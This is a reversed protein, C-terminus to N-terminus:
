ILSYAHQKVSPSSYGFSGQRINEVPAADSNTDMQNHCLPYNRSMRRRSLYCPFSCKCTSQRLLMCYINPFHFHSICRWRGKEAFRLINVPRFGDVKNNVAPLNWRPQITQWIFSSLLLGPHGRHDFPPYFHFLKTNATPSHTGYVRGCCHHSHLSTCVCPHTKKIPWLGGFCCGGYLFLPFIFWESRQEQM